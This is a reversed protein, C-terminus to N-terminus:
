TGGIWIFLGYGLLTMLFALVIQLLLYMVLHSNSKDRVLYFVELAFTSFTTLSGLIGVVLFLVIEYAIEPNSEVWGLALGAMFCGALNAVVTGTLYDSRGIFKVTFIGAFFRLVAGIAGGLAVLLLYIM